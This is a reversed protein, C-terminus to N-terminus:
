YWMLSRIRDKLHASRREVACLWAARGGATRKAREQEELARHVNANSVGGLAMAATVRDIFGARLAGRPRLLLEYDACVRYATDYTGYESFLSRHHMSGVHAVTMHRGFAPWSWPAGITRVRTGNKLLDVRSSIYQLTRPSSEAIKEAYTALADP